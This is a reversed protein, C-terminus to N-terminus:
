MGHMLRLMLIICIWFYTPWRHLGRPIGAIQCVLFIVVQLVLVTEPIEQDVDVATCDWMTIDNNFSAAGYFMSTMHTVLSTNWTDLPQNFAQAVYFMSTMDVVASVDWANIPANFYDRNLFLNAMSTVGTTNWSNPVGSFYVGTLTPCNGYPDIAICDNVANQLLLNLDAEQALVCCAYLVYLWRTMMIFCWTQAFVKVRKSIEANIYM